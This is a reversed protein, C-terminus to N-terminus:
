SKILVFLGAKKNKPNIIIIRSKILLHQEQLMHHMCRFQAFEKETEMIVYRLIVMIEGHTEGLFIMDNVM